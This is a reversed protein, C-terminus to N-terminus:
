TPLSLPFTLWCINFILSDEKVFNILSDFDSTYRLHVDKFAKQAERIDILRAIAARERINKEKNFRIPTMISEYVLYGLFIVALSLVIQIVTRM